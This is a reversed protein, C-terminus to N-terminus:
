NFVSSFFQVSFSYVFNFNEFSIYYKFEFKQRSNSLIESLPVMTIKWISDIISTYLSTLRIQCVLSVDIFFVSNKSVVSNIVFSTIQSTITIVVTVIVFSAIVFNIILSCGAKAQGTAQYEDQSWNSSFRESRFSGWAQKWIHRNIDMGIEMWAQKWGHMHGDMGIEMWAQKYGHRIGYSALKVFTQNREFCHQIVECSHTHPAWIIVGGFHFSQPQHRGKM